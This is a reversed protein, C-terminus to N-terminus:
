GKTTSLFDLTEEEKPLFDSNFLQWLRGATDRYNITTEETYIKNKSEPDIVYFKVGREANEIHKILNGYYQQPPVLEESVINRITDFITM